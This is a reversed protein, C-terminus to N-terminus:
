ERSVLFQAVTEQEVAGEATITHQLMVKERSNAALESRMDRDDVLAQLKSEWEETSDAL